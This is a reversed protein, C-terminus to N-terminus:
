EAIGDNQIGPKVTEGNLGCFSVIIQPTLTVYSYSCKFLDLKKIQIM